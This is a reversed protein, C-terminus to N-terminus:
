LEYSFYHFSKMSHVLLSYKRTDRDIVKRRRDKTARRDQQDEWRENTTKGGERGTTGVKGISASSKQSFIGLNGFKGRREVQMEADEERESQGALGRYRCWTYTRPKGCMKMEEVELCVGLVDIVIFRCVICVGDWCCNERTAEAQIVDVWGELDVVMVVMQVETEAFWRMVSTRKTFCAEFGRKRRLLCLGAENEEVAADFM